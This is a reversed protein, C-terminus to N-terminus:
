FKNPTISNGAGLEFPIVFSPEFGLTEALLEMAWTLSYTRPRKRSAVPSGM